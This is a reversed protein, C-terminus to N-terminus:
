KKKKKKGGSQNQNQNQNNKLINANKSVDGGNDSKHQDQNFLYVNKNGVYDQVIGNALEGIYFSGLKKGKEVAQEMAWKKFKEGATIEQKYLTSFNANYAIEMKMRDNIKRLEDDSVTSLDLKRSDRVKKIREQEERKAQEAAKKEDAKAKKAARKEDAKAKRLVRREEAKARSIKRREEHAKEIKALRKKARKIISSSKKRSLPYPPGHRVGYKQGPIGHHYLEYNYM